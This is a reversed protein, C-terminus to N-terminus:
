TYLRYEHIRSSLKSNERSNQFSPDITPPYQHAGEELLGDIGEVQSM